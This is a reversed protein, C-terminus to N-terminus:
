SQNPDSTTDSVGCFAMYVPFLFSNILRHPLHGFYESLTESTLGEELKFKFTFYNIVHLLICLLLSVSLKIAHPIRGIQDSRWLTSNTVSLIQRLRWGKIWLFDVMLAVPLTEFFEFIAQTFGGSVKGHIFVCILIDFFLYFMWGNLALTVLLSIINLALFSQSSLVFKLWMVMSMERKDYEGSTFLISLIPAGTLVFPMLVLIIANRWFNSLKSISSISTDSARSSMPSASSENSSMSRRPLRSYAQNYQDKTLYIPPINQHFIKQNGSM